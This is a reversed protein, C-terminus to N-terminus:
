RRGSYGRSCYLRFRRSDHDGCMRRVRAPLRAPDFKIVNSLDQKATVRADQFEQSDIGNKGAIQKLNVEATAFSQGFQQNRFAIVNVDILLVLAQYLQDAYKLVLWSVFSGIPGWGLFPVAQFLLQLGYNVLTNWVLDEFLDAM